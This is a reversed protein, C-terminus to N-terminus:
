AMAFWSADPFFGLNQESQGSNSLSRQLLDLTIEVSTQFIRVGPIETSYQLYSNVPVLQGSFGDWNSSPLKVSSVFAPTTQALEVFTTPPPSFVLNRIFREPPDSTAQNAQHLAPTAMSLVSSSMNESSAVQFSNVNQPQTDASDNFSFGILLLLAAAIAVGLALGPRADAFGVSVPQSVAAPRISQTQPKALPQTQHKALCNLSSDLVEYQKVLQACNACTSAHNMLMPDGSLTLRDDLLQHIRLEFNRCNLSPKM